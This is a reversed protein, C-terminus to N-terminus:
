QDRTPEYLDVDIHVFCFRLDSVEDFREPIWGKRIHVHPFESLNRAAIEEECSLHGRHWYSGDLRLPESLGAFSDFLHLSRSKGSQKSALAMFYATAGMYTGCEALDGDLWHLSNVLNYVAHKRELSRFNDGCLRQYTGVFQYDEWFLKQDEGLKAVPYLVGLCREVAAYAEEPRFNDDLSDLIQIATRKPGAQQAPIYVHYERGNTRPDSNDIASFYLVNHWHSFAGGGHKGILEHFTHPPGLGIGNELLQLPSSFPSQPTDGIPLWEPLEATFCNGTMKSFQSIRVLRNRDTRNPQFKADNQGHMGAGIIM